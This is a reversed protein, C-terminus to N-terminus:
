GVLSRPFVRAGFAYAIHPTAAVLSSFCQHTLSLHKLGFEWMSVDSEKKESWVCCL